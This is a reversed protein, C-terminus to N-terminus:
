SCVSLFGAESDWFMDSDMGLKLVVVIGLSDADGRRETEDSATAM